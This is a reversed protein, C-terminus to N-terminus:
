CGDKAECGGKAECGDAATRQARSFIVYVAAARKMSLRWALM